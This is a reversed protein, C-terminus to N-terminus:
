RQVRGETLLPPFQAPNDRTFRHLDKRADVVLGMGLARYCALRFSLFDAQWPVDPEFLSLAQACEPGPPLVEALSVLALARSEDMMHVAFPVSLLNFLRRTAAPSRRAAEGALNLTRLMFNPPPWPDTRYALFSAEFFRNAEELNGQRYFYRAAIGNAVAPWLPRLREAVSLADPDATEALGDGVVMMEVPNQPDSTQRHWSALADAYRSGLWESLAQYRARQDRTSEAPISPTLGLSVDFAVREDAVRAADVEGATLLPRHEDRARALAAVDRVHIARTGTLARAFGFEVFARDDTNIRAGELEAIRRVLSPRAVHHALVGELSTTSWASLLASRFPEQAARARLVGVDYVLPERASVLLLDSPAMFWTEVYPFVQALTAMITRLTQGDIAYAQVWQLFIGGKELRREVARYYERTFLSAIGARYPNSPESAIIDYAEGKALLTERADGIMVRHKPNAMADHNVAACDRAIQLIAPELEVTDVREISPIAALWGSTSGTGLGIVFARRPHGHLFAGFLGGMVQTGADMRAHGDTKGNLVFAYGTAAELAVSSEVGEEDRAISRRVGNEWDRRATPNALSGADVRGVAIPSHRWVATPGRASLVVAIAATAILWPLTRPLTAGRETRRFGLLCALLGLLALMVAVLQWCGPATLVPMLGFGGALSGAIAGLTNAAYVMGTQRGVGARGRGLLAILVPFQIGSAIAAPLVVLGAVVVWVVAHGSFGFAGGLPLLFLTLLAVGDGLAFPLAIAAAEALCIGAFDLLTAPSRRRSALLGHFSSGLGIGLLALALIIGFGFVTGGLLPGLMRYWVLEMLFFAFGVVGAALLVFGPAAGTPANTSAEAPRESRVAPLRRSWALAALAVCAGLVTASWLTRRTGFAELLIFNALLCGVVAGLTNLGYLVALRRRGVDEDVEVAAVAAPMAGGMLLTPGGLVFAGLVIRLATGALLGLRASGGIEVYVTRVLWLLVPSLAALLAAGLELAGYLALPRSSRDARPGLLLGGAGLGGIFVALVAATAATSAGFVLRFERLWAVQYVLASLGSAFLLLGVRTPAIARSVVLSERVDAEAPM